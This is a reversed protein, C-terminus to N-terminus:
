FIYPGVFQQLPDAPAEGLESGPPVLGCILCLSPRSLNKMSSACQRSPKLNSWMLLVFVTSRVLNTRLHWADFDIPGTRVGSAAALGEFRFTSKAAAIAGRPDAATSKSSSHDSWAWPGFTCKAPM